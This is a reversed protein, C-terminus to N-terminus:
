FPFFNVTIATRIIQLILSLAGPFHKTKGSACEYGQSISLIFHKTFITLPQICDVKKAFLEMKSTESPESYM